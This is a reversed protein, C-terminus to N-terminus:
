MHLQVTQRNLIGLKGQFNFEHISHTVEVTSTRCNNENCGSNCADLALDVHEVSHHFILTQLCSINKNKIASYYRLRVM